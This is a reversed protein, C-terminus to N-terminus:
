KKKEREMFFKCAPCGISRQKCNPCVMKGYLVPNGLFMVALPWAMIGAILWSFGQLLLWVGAVLPIINLMLSPILDKLSFTKETFKKSDGKDVFLGAIKGRGFACLRGYYYCNACGKVYVSWELYIIYIFFPLTFIPRVAYVLYLATAYVSLNVLNTVFVIWAPYKEFGEEALFGGWM